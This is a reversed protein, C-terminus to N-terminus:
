VSPCRAWTEISPLVESAAELILKTMAIIFNAMKGARHHGLIAKTQQDFRWTRATLEPACQVRWLLSPAAATTHMAERQGTIRDQCCLICPIPDDCQAHYWMFNKLFFVGTFRFVTHGCYVLYIHHYQYQCTSVNILTVISVFTYCNIKWWFPARRNLYM